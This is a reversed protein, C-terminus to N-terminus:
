KSMHRWSGGAFHILGAKRDHQLVRDVIRGCLEWHKYRRTRDIGAKVLEESTLKDFDSAVFTTYSAMRARIAAPVSDPIVVDHVKM